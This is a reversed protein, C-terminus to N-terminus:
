GIHHESNPLTALDASLCFTKLSQVGLGNLPVANGGSFFPVKGFELCWIRQCAGRKWGRLVLDASLCLTELNQVSFGSVPVVNRSM